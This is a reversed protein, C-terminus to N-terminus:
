VWYLGHVIAFGPDAGAAPAVGPGLVAPTALSASGALLREKLSDTAGRLTSEFLQRVVGYPFGGELETGRAPLVALGSGEARERAADLLATKGIGAPGELLVLWGDGAAAGAVARDIEGLEADREVLRGRVLGARPGM